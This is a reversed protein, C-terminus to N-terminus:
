VTLSTCQDGVKAAGQCCYQDVLITCHSWLKERDVKLTLEKIGQLESCLQGNVVQPSNTFFSFVDAADTNQIWCTKERRKLLKKIVLKITGLSVWYYILSHENGACTKTLNTSNDGLDLSLTISHCTEYFISSLFIHRESPLFPIQM